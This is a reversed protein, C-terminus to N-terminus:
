QKLAGNIKESFQKSSAGEMDQMLKEFSFGGKDSSKPPEASYPAPAPTGVLTVKSDISKVATQSFAISAPNGAVATMEVGKERLEAKRKTLADSRALMAEFSDSSEDSKTKDKEDKKPPMEPPVKAPAEAPKEAPKAEPEKAEAPKEEEEKPEDGDPEPHDGNAVGGNEDGDPETKPTADAPNVDAKEPSASGGAMGDDDDGDGDQGAASIVAQPVSQKDATEVKMMDEIGDMRACMTEMKAKLYVLMASINQMATPLDEDGKLVVDGGDKGKPCPIAGNAEPKEPIATAKGEGDPIAEKVIEEPISGGCKEADASEAKVAGGNCKAEELPAVPEAKVSGNCKQAVDDPEVVSDSKKKEIENNMQNSETKTASARRRQFESYMLMYEKGAPTSLYSEVSDEPYNQLVASIRLLNERLINDPMAIVSQVDGAKHDPAFQGELEPHRRMEDHCGVVGAHQHEGPPCPSGDGFSKEAIDKSVESQGEKFKAEFSEGLFAIAGELSGIHRQEDSMIEKIVEKINEKKKPDIASEDVYRLAQTYGWIADREGDVQEMIENFVDFDSYESKNRDSIFEVDGVKDTKYVASKMRDPYYATVIKDFRDLSKGRIYITSDPLYHVHASKDLGSIDAKFKLYNEKLTCMPCSNNFEVIHANTFSKAKDNKDVIYTRPNAGRYVSSLEYWQDAYIRTYCGDATCETHTQQPDIRSGISKEALAGALVEEWVRDYIKQGRFYNEKVFICPKGTKEDVGEYAKWITSVLKSSHQEIGVGGGDVFEVSKDIYSQVDALENQKDVVETTVASNLYRSSPLYKCAEFALERAYMADSAYGDPVKLKGTKIDDFKQNYIEMWKLIDNSDYCKRVNFPIEEVFQYSM